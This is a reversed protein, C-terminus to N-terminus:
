EDRQRIKGFKESLCKWSCNLVITLQSFTKNKIKYFCFIWIIPENLFLNKLNQKRCFIFSFMKNTLFPGQETITTHVCWRLLKTQLPKSDTGNYQAWNHAKWITAACVHGDFERHLQFKHTRTFQQRVFASVM